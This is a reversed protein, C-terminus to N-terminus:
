LTGTATSVCDAISTMEGHGPVSVPNVLGLDDAPRPLQEGIMRRTGARSMLEQAGLEVSTQGPHVKRHALTTEPRIDPQLRGDVMDQVTRTSRIRGRDVGDAV